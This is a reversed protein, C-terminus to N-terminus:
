GFRQVRLEITTSVSSSARTEVTTSVSNNAERGAWEVSRAATSENRGNHQGPRQARTEVTTSVSGSPESVWGWGDPVISHNM